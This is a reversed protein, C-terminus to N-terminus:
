FNLQLLICWNDNKYYFLCQLKKGFQLNMVMLIRLTKEVINIKSQLTYSMIKRKKELNYSENERM